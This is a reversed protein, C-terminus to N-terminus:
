FRGGLTWLWKRMLERRRSIDDPLYLPRGRGDIVVGLAGGVVRVTGGRGPGGMGVDARHLPRLQLNASQGQPLPLMEITGQKVEVDTEEGSDYIIRLRLIPVGPRVAAIPSIVTGLSTFTSTELIQVVLVPNLNAAAGLPAALRNHDLVLTTVGSPQLADLLMLLCHGLSPANTFASGTVVIPEFWPLLDPRIRKATQPYQKTVQAVAHRVVERVLAQEIMLEDKSVPLSAPYIAKNYIYDQVYDDSVNVIFWRKIDAISIQHLLEPLGQGLGFEPYVGVIVDDAFAAAVTTSSAGVDVGLVGKAPDYIKSLFHIVRGFASATSCLRGSAWMDLEQVGPVNNIRANRVMKDLEARAPGLQELELTPRVNAALHLTTVNELASEIHGVLSQNGAYLVEPRQSEPFILCAQVVTEILQLLSQTAGGDTGGAVVIVDPRAQLIADIREDTKKRDNISINAVIRAYTSAALHRASELSVEDLLGVAVIKIPPGASLTAAFTDIGSGDAQSPMILREDVSILSRGTVDQLRDVAIRIGEGIDNYPAAATTPATGVALFRYQGDVVDFLMARTTITGVDVALLSDTEILAPNDM